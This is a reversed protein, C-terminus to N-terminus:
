NRKRTLRMPSARNCVRCEKSSLPMPWPVGMARLARFLKLGPSLFDLGSSSFSEKQLYELKGNLSSLFQTGLLM